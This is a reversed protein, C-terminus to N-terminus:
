VVFLRTMLDQSM